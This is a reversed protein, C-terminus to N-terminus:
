IQGLHNSLDGHVSVISAGVRTPLFEITKLCRFTIRIFQCRSHSSSTV